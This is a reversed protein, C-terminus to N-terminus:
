IRCIIQQLYKEDDVDEVKDGGPFENNYKNKVECRTGKGGLFWEYELDVHGIDIAQYGAKYLDFALVGAAPGMAILFLTDEEAYKLAAALIEDYKDYSNEPPAEIRRIQAANDFLDNGVGLRTLAGEVFIVNRGDWIRKLADFRKKPAETNNDAFLAYPRSIYANHYKRDMDIFKAHQERTEDSMYYRIGAKGSKNYADLSGYNDAIGILIGDDKSAIVEKLRGALSEDLRQFKQRVVNSMIAFEGDGFRAMSKRNNIIDEITEDLSYFEPYYLKSKDFKPDNLEYKLNDIAGEIINFRLETNRVTIESNKIIQKQSNLIENVSMATSKLGDKLKANEEKLKIIEDLCLSVIQQLEEFSMDEM